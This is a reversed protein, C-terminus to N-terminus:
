IQGEHEVRRSNGVPATKSSISIVSRADGLVFDLKFSNWGGVIAVIGTVISGEGSSTPRLVSGVTWEVSSRSFCAARVQDGSVYLRSVRIISDVSFRRIM